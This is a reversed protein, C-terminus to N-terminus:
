FFRSTVGRGWAAERRPGLASVEDVDVALRLGDGFRPCLWHNLQDVAFDLLPLITDEWPALRAARFNAYTADGPVGVLMPPVGHAAASPPM